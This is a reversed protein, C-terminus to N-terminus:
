IRSERGPWDRPIVCGGECHTASRSQPHVAAGDLTTTLFTYNNKQKGQTGGIAYMKKGMACCVRTTWPRRIISAKLDCESVGCDTPSRQVLSWGLASLGSLV